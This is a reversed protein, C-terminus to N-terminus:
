RRWSPSFFECIQPSNDSMDTVSLVGSLSVPCSILHPLFRGAALAAMWPLLVALVCRQRAWRVDAALDGSPVKSPKARRPSQLGLSVERGPEEPAWFESAGPQYPVSRAGAEGRWM